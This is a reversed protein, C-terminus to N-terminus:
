KISVCHTAHSTNFSLANNTIAFLLVRQRSICRRFGVRGTATARAKEQGEIFLVYDFCDATLVHSLHVANQLLIVLYYCRRWHTRTHTTSVWSSYNEVLQWVCAGGSDKERNIRTTTCCERTRRNRDSNHDQSETEQNFYVEEKQRWRALRM